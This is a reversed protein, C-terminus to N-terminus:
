PTVASQLQAVRNELAKRIEPRITINTLCMEYLRIASNTDRRRLALEALGSNVEVAGPFIKALEQYDAEAEQLHGSRLYAVARYLRTNPYNTQLTLAQTLPAIAKEPQGLEMQVIGRTVLVVPDSPRLRELQELAPLANTFRRALASLQVVSSLWPQDEFHEKLAKKLLVDAEEHRKAALLATVETRFLNLESVGESELADRKDHIGSLLEIAKEPEGFATHIGAMSVRSAVHDPVFSLVRLYQQGAQRILGNQAFVRGFHFCHTPDDFPGSAAMADNWSRFKGPEQQLIRGMRIVPEGGSRLTENFALNNRAALNERRLALATEFQRRAEELKGARQLFVGWANVTPSYFGGLMQATANPKFRIHLRALIGDQITANTKAPDPAIFPLLRELAPRHEEWFRENEVLEEETLPPGVISNTPYPELVFSLGRPRADFIEFYYGYSPHLYAIPRQRSLRMLIQVLHGPPVTNTRAPNVTLEWDDWYRRKVFAHYAPLPMLQTDLFLHDRDRGDRALWATALQLKIRDDSLVVSQPPLSATLASAYDRIAPGNTMRVEPLNRYFLGGAAIALLALVGARAALHLRSQWLPVRGMRDPIPRFVLLFYGALYGVSLAGLYNLAPIAYGIHRPSFAPNFAVWVCACLLAGYALHFVWKAMAGGMRSPDGFNSPWRIAIIFLPVLSTLVLSLLVAPRVDRYFHLFTTKQVALNSKLAGWFSVVQEDSFVHVLPLLLYLMLGAMGCVFMRFLFQFNFFMLGRIWIVAVLYAPFLCFLLWGNTMGMGWVLATQLLWKEKGSFRYELFNRVVFALLLLDLMDEAGGTAKEWFTLQLGLVCCALVPPVWALPISLLGGPGRERLRQEATRDHPMLAVARALLALTLVGCIMSFVNYGLPMWKPPLSRIPYTLVTFLPDQLNLSWVWGSTKAVQNLNSLSIWPNLTLLYICLGVAAILWPLVSRVFLKDQGRKTQTM